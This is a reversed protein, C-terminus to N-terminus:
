LKALYKFFFTQACYVFPIKWTALFYRTKRVEQDIHRGKERVMNQGYCMHAVM